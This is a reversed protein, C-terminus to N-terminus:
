GQYINDYSTYRRSFHFIPMVKKRSSSILCQFNCKKSCSNQVKQIPLTIITPELITHVPPAQPQHNQIWRYHCPWNLLTLIRAAFLQLKLSSSKRFFTVDIKYRNLPDALWQVLITNNKGHIGNHKHSALGSFRSKRFFFYINKQSPSFKM